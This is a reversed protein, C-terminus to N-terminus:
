SRACHHPVVSGLRAAIRPVSARIGCLAKARLRGGLGVQAREAPSDVLRQLAHALEREDSPPVLIGCTTDVIEPAAGIATTVVPVGASLAEVLSIGFPEPGSNPQCYIDSAALLSPVDDRQGLFHVRDQLGCAAAARRLTGEYAAESSRQAGGAVLWAWDRGPGLRSLAGLLLRHGKWPEMRAATLIAVTTPALGLSARVRPRVTADADVPAVPCHCVTYPTLGDYRVWGAATFASNCIALSPRLGRGLWRMWASPREPSHVWRVWPVATSALVDSFAAVTWGSHVVIVDPRTARLLSSLADCARRRSMPRSLRVAGLDHVPAPVTRLTVALRGDFCLAFASRMSSVAQEHRAITVLMAEIGGWLNGSHVHLARM